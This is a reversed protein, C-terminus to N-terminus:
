STHPPHYYVNQFDIKTISFAGFPSLKFDHIKINGIQFIEYNKESSEDFCFAEFPLSLFDNKRKAKGQNTIKTSWAKPSLPGTLASSIALRKLFNRYSTNGRLVSDRTLFFSYVVLSFVLYSFLAPSFRGFSSPRLSEFSFIGRLTSM